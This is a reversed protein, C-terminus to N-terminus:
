PLWKKFHTSFLIVTTDNNIRFELYGGYTKEYTVAAEVRYEEEREICVGQFSATM